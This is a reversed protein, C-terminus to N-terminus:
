VSRLARDGFLGQPRVLYVVLLAGFLVANVSLSGIDASAYQLLVGLVIGGVLSGPLNGIGGIAAAVFGNFLLNLGLSPGVQLAPAAVFGTIAAILGSVGMAIQSARAASIGVSAAGDLDESVAHLRRGLLTLRWLLSVATVLVVSVVIITVEAATTHIGGLDLPNQGLNYTFAQPEGSFQGEAARELLTGIALTSLIWPLAAGRGLFPRIAIREEVLAVAVVGIAALVFALAVPVHLRHTLLLTGLPAWYVLQAHAFNVVKGVREVINIGLAVLAFLTGSVLGPWLVDNVFNV